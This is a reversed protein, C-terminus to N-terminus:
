PRPGRKPEPLDPPWGRADLAAGVEDASRLLRVTLPVVLRLPSARLGRAALAQRLEVIRFLVEPVFRLVLAVGLGLGFALRRGPRGFPAFAAQIAAVLASPRTTQTVATAAAVLTLLRLGVVQAEEASVLWANAAVLFALLLLTVALQRLLARPAPRTSILLALAAAAAAALVLPDRTLFLLLGLALLGALKPGAPLRHLPTRGPSYLSLM